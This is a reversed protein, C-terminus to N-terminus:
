ERRFRHCRSHAKMKMGNHQVFVHVWKMRNGIGQWTILFEQVSLGIDVQSFSNLAGLLVLM